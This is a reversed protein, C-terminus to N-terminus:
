RFLLRSNVSLDCTRTRCVAGCEASIYVRFNRPPLSIFLAGHYVVSVASLSYSYPLKLLVKLRSSCLPFSAQLLPFLASFFECFFLFFATTCNFKKKLHTISINPILSITTESYESFWLDIHLFSLINKSSNM